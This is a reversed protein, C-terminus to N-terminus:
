RGTAPVCRALFHVRDRGGLNPIDNKARFAITLDERGPHHLTLNLVRREERVGTLPEVSFDINTGEPISDVLIAEVVATVFGQNVIRVPLQIPQGCVAAPLPGGTWSVSFRAEPNITVTIPADGPETTARAHHDHVHKMDTLQAVFLVYCMISLEIATPMLGSRM